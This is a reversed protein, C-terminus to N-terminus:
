FVGLGGAIKLKSMVVLDLYLFDVPKMVYDYAGLRLAKQITEDDGEGTTMVVGLDPYAALMTELAALGGMGPMRVDMLVVSPKKKLVQDLAEEGSSAELVEFGKSKFYKSFVGRVGSEDDVVLIMPNNQSAEGLALPVRKAIIKDFRNVIIDLPLDKHVVENAGSRRVEKEEDPTIEGSYIVIPTHPLRTRLERLLKLGDEEPMHYDLIILDFEQRSIMWLAHGFNPALFVQHGKATLAQKFLERVQIEDDISLINSVVRRHGSRFLCASLGM